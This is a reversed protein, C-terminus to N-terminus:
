VTRLFPTSGKANGIKKYEEQIVARVAKYVFDDESLNNGKVLVSFERWVSRKIIFGDREEYKAPLSKVNHIIKAIIKSTCNLHSMADGEWTRIVFSRLETVFNTSTM